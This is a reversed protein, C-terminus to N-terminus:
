HHCWDVLSSNFLLDSRTGVYQNMKPGKVLRGKPIDTGDIKLKFYILLTAVCCSM